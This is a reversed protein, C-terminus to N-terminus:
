RLVGGWEVVTFGKREPTKIDFGEVSIPAQLPSYDMLIRIVTDPKPSITLPAIENMASTGLFTVFFYPAGTMRPEWFEMFDAQEKTNLGLKTLKEILFDHVDSAAVVFGKKPTEYIGGRGEWFLYPYKAGSALDTLESLSTALVNWGSGYAPESKTLGGKPEIKVSVNETKEPYLYIVPKGCEAQPIFDARQFKILRGFPDYWFFAPHAKVFEEYSLKPKDYPNYDNQYIDRLLQNEPEVEYVIDGTPTKGSLLLEDKPLSVVSAYNTSGCGGRDTDVYDNANATGDNWVVTPLSHNKDYFPIDLSYTRLTGDPAKLYFGNPTHYTKRIEDTETYVGGLKPDSFALKFQGPVIGEAEDFTRYENNSNQLTFTNKGFNLKDPFVLQSFVSSSDIQHVPSLADKDFEASNKAILTTKGGRSIFHFGSYENGPGETYEVVSLLVDGGKYEGSNVIGVKWTSRTVYGEEKFVRILDTMSPEVPTFIIEDGEVAVSPTPTPVPSVSTVPKRNYIQGTEYGIAIALLVIIIGLVINRSKNM